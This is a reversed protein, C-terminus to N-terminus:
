RKGNVMRLFAVHSGVLGHVGGHPGRGRGLRGINAALAQRRVPLQSPAAPGSLLRGGPGSRDSM